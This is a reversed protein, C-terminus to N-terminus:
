PMHTMIFDGCAPLRTCIRLYPLEPDWKNPSLNIIQFSSLLVRTPIEEPTNHALESIFNEFLILDRAILDNLGEPWRREAGTSSTLSTECHGLLISVRASDAHIGKAVEALIIERALADSANMEIPEM